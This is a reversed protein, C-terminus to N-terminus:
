RSNWANQCSRANQLDSLGLMTTLACAQILTGASVKARALAQCPPKSGWFVQPAKQRLLCATRTALIIVLHRLRPM